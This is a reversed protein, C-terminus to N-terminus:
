EAESALYIRTVDDREHGLWKSVQLRADYASKGDAILARYWEAACTHRLGHFTLPSRAADEQVRGRHARIFNQLETIAVHTQRGDPVFLKNGPKTRALCNALVIRVEEDLPVERVKGGKGKITLFGDKLAARAIATDIRMVEHLRLGAYRAIMLCAGYDERQANRCEDLMKHFEEHNWTRDVGGFRRRELSYASNAPLTYKASPIQDHWFRIAALDTKITSASLGREQMRAVYASLHKGSVNAIKELRYADALYRLFRQYAQFYREKTKYSGQRNHRRLKEAQALLNQYLNNSM